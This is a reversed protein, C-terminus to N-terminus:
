KSLKKEPLSNNILLYHDLRNKISHPDLQNGIFLFESLVNNPSHKFYRQEESFVEISPGIQSIYYIQNELPSHCIAKTGSM